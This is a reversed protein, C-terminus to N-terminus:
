ADGLDVKEFRENFLILSSANLQKSIPSTVTLSSPTSHTTRSHMRVRTSHQPFVNLCSSPFSSNFTHSRPLGMGKLYNLSSYPSDFIDFVILSPLLLKM